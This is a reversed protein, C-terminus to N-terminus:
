PMTGSAPPQIGPLVIVPTGGPRVGNTLRSIPRGKADVLGLTRPDKIFAPDYMAKVSTILQYFPARINVNFQIPLNAVQKTIFNRKTGTGQKVGGFSVNTVIEGELDGNMAITMTRYDLSKLADFAFNAMPSLDKYTLAGVYSVNGGPPRSVLAGGVIKGGEADFVLPLRGDFIGSASLNGLQMRELFKAADLGSVLLTYRRTEAIGLRLDTPEMALTGGLFPWSAGNLRLVQDPLLQIDITGDNVEIGPNVSAVRLTQHPATVMGLLDTFALKGSLGKVPGFAAALDLSDTGFTGSSTVGRQSWDIRGDGKVTGAANAVVGLALRTLEDPQLDKDFRLGPVALDAHGAGSSLDHRITARAVERGSAPHRLLAEADIRNDALTLTADQAALLEFRAPNMRDTLDFRAGSLSLRGETYRWEGSAKTVDLPVAALRAEVGGFTGSFDKGLRAVLDELRFRAPASDPGLAVNMAKATLTGPWAFGVPGSDLHIPTEGLKGSLALASAGAAVRLGGAGNRVIAGGGAPCITLRQADLTVQGLALRDFQPTVCRRWLALEGNSAYAGQLPLRLNQVSGGPISGSLHAMGSFGLSGDGVQAVMMDPIALAGGGARYGAMTVRFVARGPTSQEMRGNIRPLGEGGTGFAGAMHPTGKGDGSMQFRSLTLLTQGSGGRLIANPVVFSWGAPQRRFSLDGGMRSGREERALARRVQAVMPALLTGSVATETSALARDFTPGRRLGQGDVSGRFEVASLGGRAAIRGDLGLLAVTAGGAHVGGANAAVRGGLVGDRWALATDLALSEASLQGFSVESSRINGKSTLGKFDKDSTLDLDMVAEALRVGSDSCDLQGLRLPGAFRPKEASITVKGWASAKRVVCGNAQLEPAIAAVTGAFGDRLRGRGEAKFGVRGMDTDLMGRGDVLTLRYDPLRFPKQSPTAPFLLKDLAGFSLKHNLYSGYLRPKFIRIEGIEPAGLAYVVRLEAREITLDPKKPDGIVINRLVQVGPGITEIEYTAPLGLRALESNIVRDAIRDRALWVGGLAAVLVLGTGLLVSRTRRRRRRPRSEGPAPGGLSGPDGADEALDTNDGM